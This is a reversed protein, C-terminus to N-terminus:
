QFEIAGGNFGSARGFGKSLTELGLEVELHLTKVSRTQSSDKRLQSSTFERYGARIQRAFMLKMKRLGVPRCGALISSEPVVESSLTEMVCSPFAIM